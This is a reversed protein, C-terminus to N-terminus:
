RSPAAKLSIRFAAGSDPAMLILVAGPGEAFWDPCMGKLRRPYEM